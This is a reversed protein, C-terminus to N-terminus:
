PLVCHVNVIPLYFLENLNWICMKNGAYKKLHKEKVKGGKGGGDKTKEKWRCGDKWREQESDEDRRKVIINPIYKWLWQFNSGWKEGKERQYPKEKIEEQREERENM